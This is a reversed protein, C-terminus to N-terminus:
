CLKFLRRANITTTQAIKEASVNLLEALYQVIIKVNKPENRQSRNPQPTLFPADTELVLRELPIKKALGQLGHSYTINADIGVYFGRELVQRLFAQNGSFCHFVGKPFQGISFQSNLLKLIDDHAQRNHIILPLKLKKAVQLHVKFLKKQLQKVKPTIKNEPYKTIQYEHYDLGCEGIAVVKRDLASECLHLLKQRTKELNQIQIAHHPHIGVAAYIGAYKEALEIAKQSNTLDSGPIIIKTVGATQARKIVAELDPEFAQFNLHCHTDILM